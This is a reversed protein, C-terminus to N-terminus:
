AASEAGTILVLVALPLLAMCLARKAKQGNM